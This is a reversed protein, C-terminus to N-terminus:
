EPSGTGEYTVLFEWGGSKLHGDFVDVVCVQLGQSVTEMAVGIAHHFNDAHVHQVFIQDNDEYFGCVTFPKM